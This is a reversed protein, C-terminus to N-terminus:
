GLGRGRRQGIRSFAVGPVCILALGLNAPSIIETGMPELLGFASPALQARDKVQVLFLENRGSVVRPMLVRRHSDLASTLLKETLVENDKAAYLVITAARRYAISQLVRHQVARSASAVYSPPLASRCERLIKRLYKKEDAV